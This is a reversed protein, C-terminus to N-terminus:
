WSGRMIENFRVDILRQDGDVIYPELAKRIRQATAECDACCHDDDCNRHDDPMAPTERAAARCLGVVFLGVLGGVLGGALAHWIV